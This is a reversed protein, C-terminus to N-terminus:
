LSDFQKLECIIDDVSFCEMEHWKQLTCMGLVRERERESVYGYLLVFLMGFEDFRLLRSITSMHM